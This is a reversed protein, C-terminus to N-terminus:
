LTLIAHSRLRLEEDVFTRVRRDQKRREEPPADTQSRREGVRRDLIVAVDDDGAFQDRLVEYLGPVGRAVIFLHRPM